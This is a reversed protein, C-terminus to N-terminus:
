GFPFLLAIDSPTQALINVKCFLTNASLVSTLLQDGLIDFIGLVLQVYLM